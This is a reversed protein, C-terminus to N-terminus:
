SSSHNPFAGLYSVTVGGMAETDLDSHSDVDPDKVTVSSGSRGKNSDPSYTEELWSRPRKGSTTSQEDDDKADKDQQYVELEIPESRNSQEWAITSARNRPKTDGREIYAHWILVDLM